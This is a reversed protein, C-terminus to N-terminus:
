HGDVGSAIGRVVIRAVAHTIGALVIGGAGRLAGQTSGDFLGVSVVISRADVEVDGYSVRIM